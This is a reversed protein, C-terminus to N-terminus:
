TRTQLRSELRSIVVPHFGLLHDVKAIAQEDGTTLSPTARAAPDREIFREKREARQPTAQHDPQLVEGCPVPGKLGDRQLLLGTGLKAPQQNARIPAARCIARAADLVAAQLCFCCGTSASGVIADSSVRCRVVIM